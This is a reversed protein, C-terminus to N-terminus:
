LRKSFFSALNLFKRCALRARRKERDSIEPDALSYSAVLTRVLARYCQYFDILAPLEADRSREIYSRVLEEALKRRRLAHLDMALYAVEAAVDCCALDDNFEIADFIFIQDEKIFINSARVDGHCHRIRKERVRKLFLSRREELFTRARTEISRMKAGGSFHAEVLPELRFAHSFNEEITALSGYKAAAPKARGHFDALIRAIERVQEPQVRDKKVLHDMRLEQPMEMMKVAYEAIEGKGDLAVAAGATRIPIVGLYLDPALRRNIKL